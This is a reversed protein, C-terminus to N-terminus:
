PRVMFFQIKSAAEPCGASSFVVSIYKKYEQLHTMNRGEIAATEVDTKGVVMAMAIKVAEAIVDHRYGDETDALPDYYMMNKISFLNRLRLQASALNKFLYIPPFTLDPYGQTAVAPVVDM